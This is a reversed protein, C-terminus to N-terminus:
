TSGGIRLAADSPLHPPTRIWRPAGLVNLFNSLSLQLVVNKPLGSRRNAFSHGTGNVSDFVSFSPEEGVNLMDQPQRWDGRLLGHRAPRGYAHGASPRNHSLNETRDLQCTANTSLPTCAPAWSDICSRRTQFM